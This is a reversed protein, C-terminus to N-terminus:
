PKFKRPGLIVFGIDDGGPSENYTKADFTTNYLGDKGASLVMVTHYDNDATITGEVSPLAFGINIMYPRGWPDIPIRDLYPGNWGPMEHPKESTKYLTSIEGSQNRILQETLTTTTGFSSWKHSGAAKDTGEPIGANGTGLDFNGVLRFAEPNADLDTQAPWQGVDKYFDLVANGIVQADSQARSIKGQNLNKAVPIGVAVSLVAVIAVAILVEFLSFGDRRANRM